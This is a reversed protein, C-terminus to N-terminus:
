ILSSHPAPRLWAYGYGNNHSILRCHPWHIGDVKGDPTQLVFCGSERVAVRGQYIVGKKDAEVMDGTAFGHVRKQRMLYGRPFGYKNLRTRQYSGRGTCRVQLVGMSKPYDAGNIRGVCLADLWHEKPIGFAKRNFKTQAGTGTAVPLGTQKLANFLAWRTANVAAADRLPAKLQRRIREIQEPKNKLFVELPQASKKQNCETCALVLNSVRDSGGKARPFVHDINLPVNEVGCYVCKRGFKELLYERVEFGFLTGQQYEVGSVEPNLLKQTDFKINEVWLATVPVLKRLKKVWSMTTDVRHQLSPPLWGKRRKRNLFRPARYRLNASRRRHRFARRGTLRDRIVKGRHVLNIFFLAHHHAKGDDRVVAMGSQESGPDVKVAVPQVASNELLRDVLRITFPYTKVVRARGANLLKRARAPRCPM